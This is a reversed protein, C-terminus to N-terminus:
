RITVLSLQQDPREVRVRLVGADLRASVQKPEVRMPLAFMRAFAGIPSECALPARALEGWPPPRHGRVVVSAGDCSVELTDRAVGPVDIALEFGSEDQWWVARPQWSPVPAATTPAIRGEVAAILKGLQEEVHRAPDIEPPIRAGDTAAPPQHGTITTYLREVRDITDEINPISPSM